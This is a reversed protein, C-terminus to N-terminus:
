DVAYGDLYYGGSVYEQALNTDTGSMAELLEKRAKALDVRSGTQVLALLVPDTRLQRVVFGSVFACAYSSGKIDPSKWFPSGFLGRRSVVGVNVFNTSYNEVAVYGRVPLVEEVIDDAADVLKSLGAKEIHSLVNDIISDGKPSLTDPSFYTKTVSTVTIVNPLEASYCAPYVKAEDLNRTPTQGKNGAAAVVLVGAKLLQEIKRKLLPEDRGFIWSTNVVRIPSHQCRHLIYNFGNLVDFLTAYGLNDFAKVPVVQADDGNQQIIATISTGHRAGKINEMELGHNPDILVVCDDFPSNIVDTSTYPGSMTSLLKMQAIFDTQRYAQLACYGLHNDAMAKSCGNTSEERYALSFRREQGNADRYVYPDPWGEENQNYLNFKLGTDIVAVVPGTDQSVYNKQYHLDDGPAAPRFDSQVTNIPESATVPPRAPPSNTGGGDNYSVVLFNNSQTVPFDNNSVDILRLEPFLDTTEEEWDLLVTYVTNGNDDVEPCDMKIVRSLFSHNLSRLIIELQDNNKKALAGVKLEEKELLSIQSETLTVIKQKRVAFHPIRSNPDYYEAFQIGLFPPLKSSNGDGGGTPLPTTNTGKSGSGSQNNVVENGHTGVPSRHEEGTPCDVNDPKSTVKSLSDDPDLPISEFAM